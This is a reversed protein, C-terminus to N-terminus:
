CEGILSEIVGLYKEYEKDWSFAELVARRGNQGMEYAEKKHTLLYSIAEIYEEERRPNVCIGCHYKEVMSEYLPVKALIVPVAAEMTEFIKIISYSGQPTETLNFDKVVNGIVSSNIIQPLTERRFGDIFEVQRWAPLTMLKEKYKYDYFKGALIYKVNPFKEIAKLLVEQCSITYITGFYSIVDNRSCYEDYTLNFNKNIVPFNAVDEFISCPMKKSILEHMEPMCSIIADFRQAVNHLRREIMAESILRGLKTKKNRSYYIPYYERLNFIVKKGHKKLFFGLPLLEYDNIQYIDAEHNKLFEKFRKNKVINEYIIRAHRELSFVRYIIGHFNNNISIMKIGDKVESPLGDCLIYSVNYGSAVLSRGQRQVILSDQRTFLRSIFCIHKTCKM